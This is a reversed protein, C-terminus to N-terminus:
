PFWPGRWHQPSCRQCPIGPVCGRRRPGGGGSHQNSKGGATCRLFECLTNLCVDASSECTCREHAAHGSLPLRQTGVNCWAAASSNQECISYRMCHFQSPGVADQQSWGSPESLINSHTARQACTNPSGLPWALLASGSPAMSVVVPCSAPTPMPAAAVRSNAGRMLLFCNQSDGWEHVGMIEKVIKVAGTRQVAIASCHVATVSGQSRVEKSMQLTLQM